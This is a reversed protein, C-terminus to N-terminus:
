TGFREWRVTGPYGLPTAVILFWAHQFATIRTRAIPTGDTYTGPAPVKTGRKGHVGFESVFM